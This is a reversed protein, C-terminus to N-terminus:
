TWCLWLVTFIHLIDPTGCIGVICESYRSYSWYMWLVEFVDLVDLTGRIGGICGSYRSHRYYMWVIRRNRTYFNQEGCMNLRCLLREEVYVLSIFM